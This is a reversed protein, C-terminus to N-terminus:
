YSYVIIGVRPNQNKNILLFYLYKM